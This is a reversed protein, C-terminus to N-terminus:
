IVVDINYRQILDGFQKAIIKHLQAKQDGTLFQLAPNKLKVQQPYFGRANPKIKKALENVISDVCDKDTTFSKAISKLLFTPSVPLVNEAYDLDIEYDLVKSEEIVFSNLKKNRMVLYSHIKEKSCSYLTALQSIKLTTM